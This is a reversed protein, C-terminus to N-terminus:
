FQFYIFAEPQAGFAVILMCVYLYIGWRYLPKLSGIDLGHEKTRQLWEFVVMNVLVVPIPLIAKASEAWPLTLLSSDAIGCLYAWADSISDARFIVLGVTVIAFTLLLILTFVYIWSIALIHNTKAM